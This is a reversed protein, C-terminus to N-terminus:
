SNEGAVYSALATNDCKMGEFCPMNRGRQFGSIVALITFSLLPSSLSPHSVKTLCHIGAYRTNNGPGHPDAGPCRIVLPSTQLPLKPFVAFLTRMETKTLVTYHM